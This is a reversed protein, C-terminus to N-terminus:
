VNIVVRFVRIVIRTIIIIIVRYLVRFYRVTNCNNIYYYYYNNSLYIERIIPNSCLANYTYSIIPLSSLAPM